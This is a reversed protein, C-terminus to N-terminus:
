VSFLEQNEYKIYEGMLGANRWLHGQLSILSENLVECGIANYLHHGYAGNQENKPNIIGKGTKLNLRIIRKDSQLLITDGGSYPYITFIQENRMNGVKLVISFFGRKTTVQSM